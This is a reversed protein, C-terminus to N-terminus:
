EKGFEIERPEPATIPRATMRLKACACEVLMMRCCPCIEQPCGFHHYGGGITGCGACRATVATTYRIREYTMGAVVVRGVSCGCHLETNQFCARCRAV